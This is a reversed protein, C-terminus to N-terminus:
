LNIINIKKCNVDNNVFDLVVPTKSELLLGFGVKRIFPKDSYPNILSFPNVELNIQMEVNKHLKHTLYYHFHGSNEIGMNFSNQGTKLSYM